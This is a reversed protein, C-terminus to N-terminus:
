PWFPTTQLLGSFAMQLKALTPTSPEVGKVAGDNGYITARTPAGTALEQMSHLRDAGEITVGTTSTTKPQVTVSEILGRLKQIAELRAEPNEARAANRKAVQDRYDAIIVPHLAVVPLPALQEM